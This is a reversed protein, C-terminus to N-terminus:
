KILFEFTKEKNKVEKPNTSILKAYLKYINVSPKDSNAFKYFPKPVIGSFDNNKIEYLYWENLLYILQFRNEKNDKFKNLIERTSSLYKKM